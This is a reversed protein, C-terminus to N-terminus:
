DVEEGLAAAVAAQPTEVHQLPAERGAYSVAKWSHLAVVRKGAKLALGIESLTGFGGGIAIVAEGALVVLVNRANGLGTPLVYTLYPNAERADADPLLGITVGGAELAGRCAQEMVGGRGGCVLTIGRSALLRGVAYAARGEQEDCRAGGIVAIMREPRM